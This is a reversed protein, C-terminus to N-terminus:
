ANPRWPEIAAHGPVYLPHRPSGERTIGLCFLDGMGPMDVVEAGRWSPANAGWAVITMASRRHANRIFDDNGPGAVDIDRNLAGLLDKPYTARYAFLNVVEIETFRNSAAFGICRRITPDDERADAMSPNLMIFTLTGDAESGLQPPLTRRLWFRYIGDESLIANSSPREYAPDIVMGKFGSCRCSDTADCGIGGAHQGDSHGCRLCNSHQSMM